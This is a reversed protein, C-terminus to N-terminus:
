GNFRIADEALKKGLEFARQCDKPFIKQRHDSKEKEDFASSEYKSYDSFQYTNNVYLIEAPTQFVMAPHKQSGRLCTDTGHEKMMESTDNMTYIFAHPIRKPYCTYREKNYLIYPYLFRELFASMGSSLNFLYVPTGFIIADADKLQKLVPTLEDSLACEGYSRGGILKCAFCSKCGTFNLKYLDVIETEFGLSEAGKLSHKLVTATNKNFRPSGNIAYLKMIGQGKV